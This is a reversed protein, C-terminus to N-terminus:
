SYITITLKIPVIKKLFLVHPSLDLKTQFSTIWNTLKSKNTIISIFSSDTDSKPNQRELFLVTSFPVLSQLYPVVYAM